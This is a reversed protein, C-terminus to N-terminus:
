IYIYCCLLLSVYPSPLEDLTALKPNKEDSIKAIKDLTACIQTNKRTEALRAEKLGMWILIDRAM